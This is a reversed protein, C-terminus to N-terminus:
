LTKLPLVTLIETLTTKCLEMLKAIQPTSLHNELTKENTWTERVYYDLENEESQFIEYHIMGTEDEALIRLHLLTRLIIRASERDKTKLTVFLTKM